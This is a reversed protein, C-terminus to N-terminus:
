TLTSYRIASLDLSALTPAAAVILDGNAQVQIEGYQATADSRGCIYRIGAYAAPIRYGVPVTGVVAGIVVSGGAVRGRFVVDGDPALRYQPQISVGWGGSLPLNHWTEGQIAWPENVTSSDPGLLIGNTDGAGDDAFLSVADDRLQLRSYGVGTRVGSTLQLAMAFADFHTGEIIAVDRSGSGFRIQTVDFPVGGVSPDLDIFGGTSELHIGDPSETIVATNNADYMIIQGNVGDLFIRKGTSVGFPLGLSRLAAFLSRM